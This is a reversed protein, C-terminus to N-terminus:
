ITMARTCSWTKSRRWAQALNCAPTEGAEKNVRIRAGIFCVTSLQGVAVTLDVLARTKEGLEQELQRVRELLLGSSPPCAPWQSETGGRCPQV